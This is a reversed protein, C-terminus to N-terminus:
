CLQLLIKLIWLLLHRYIKGLIENEIEKVDCLGECYILSYENNEKFKVDEVRKLHDKLETIYIM